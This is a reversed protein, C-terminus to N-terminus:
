AGGQRELRKRVKPDVDYGDFWAGEKHADPRSCHFQAEALTLGSKIIRTGYSKRWHRVIRYVPWYAPINM